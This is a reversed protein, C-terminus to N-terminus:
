AAGERAEDAPAEKMSETVTHTVDVVRGAHVKVIVGVSGYQLGTANSLLRSVIAEAKSRSM